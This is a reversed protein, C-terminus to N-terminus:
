RGDGAGRALGASVLVAGADREDAVILRGVWRTFSRVETGTEIRRHTEAVLPGQATLAVLEARAADGGPEGLEPADIGALRLDFTFSQGFGTDVRVRLTDGDHVRVIELVDWRWRGDPHARSTM